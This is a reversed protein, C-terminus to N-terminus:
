GTKALAMLHFLLAAGTGYVSKANRKPIQRTKPAQEWRGKRPLGKGGHSSEWAGRAGLWLPTHLDGLNERILCDGDGGKDPVRPSESQCRVCAGPIAVFSHRILPFIKTVIASTAVWAVHVGWSVNDSDVGRRSGAWSFVSSLKGRELKKAARSRATWSTMGEGWCSRATVPVMIACCLLEATSGDGGHGGSM